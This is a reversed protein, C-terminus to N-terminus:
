VVGYALMARAVKLFGAINAGAVYDGPKGYTQAADLCSKHIGKMIGKLRADVEERTWSLRMSNQSMELGSVAVGGANAAKGPGYLLGAQQFVEVAEATSPMNAGEAVCICGSKVLAEAHSKDIENQTAGPLAVNVKLGHNKIVDWTSENPYLKASPYKAAYEAIRGRRVNKLEMLFALKEPSIGDMDVVTGSSDCATVPKGGLQNVKEITYQAVNGSGSVAVIQGNFDKGRTALMEAAFYSTGYGTAEPRILSGGYELGKGTFTGTHENRLKKYYGFIYGIERGGVGIDGAPVDVDPGIHRYLEAMFAQLFRMVELDSKGKPDFDSGGKAGGMPLTTLSNKFIQEFGLFKLVGLNVSPHLRIGGKYPGIANNFQIRFGRNVRVKGSDDVWPVRFMLQRDPEVVREYIAAKVFEPHKAVTPELSELVETAAQHFEPQGPDVMKIKAIVDQIVSM